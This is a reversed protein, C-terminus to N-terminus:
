ATRPWSRTPGSCAIRWAPAACTPARARPRREPTMGPHLAWQPIAVMWGAAQANKRAEAVRGASPKDYLKKCCECQITYAIM